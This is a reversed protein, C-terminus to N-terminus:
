ANSTNILSKIFIKANLGLPVGDSEIYEVIDEYSKGGEVLERILKKYHKPTEKNGFVEETLVTLNEGFSEMGIKRVSPVNEHREVVYVNRSFCERVVLPSHTALICYSQFEGVLSYITNMLQTIANPHLHTEPEDFLVLSDYRINAVIQSIIYLIISQGSSLKRRVESFGEISVSYNWKDYIVFENVMDEEIFNLLVTRWQELRELEEIKKWTSHFRLLLGKETLLEGKENRLGCYVYNFTATKKPIKFTDFISYSVAIVKSFLPINPKFYDEKKESINIPLSTMLQTKGTGNKGILAYVRNPLENNDGFHFSVDIKDSSFKPKFAYDFSYLNELDAGNILHKAERLVREPRDYRILSNIFKPHNEFEELIDSFFATDRLAYLVGMFDNGLLEKLDKYYYMYQGLSCFEKGLQTFTEPIVDLTDEDKLVIKVSGINHQWGKSDYYFLNFENMMGYDNWSDNFVLVFSPNKKPPHHSNSQKSNALNKKVVYFPITNKKVDIPFLDTEDVEKITYIPLGDESYESISLQLRDRELIDNIPLVFNFIEEEDIRFHPHVVTEIFRIFTEDDDYLRLRDEFLYEIEWDNNNITHQVIDGEADKFRADESPMSKLDWVTGLFEMIGDYEDEKFPNQQHSILDFLEKKNKTTIKKQM